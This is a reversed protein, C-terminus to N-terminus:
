KYTTHLGFDIAVLKDDIYGYNKAHTDRIPFSLKAKRVRKDFEELALEFNHSNNKLVQETDARQTYYGWADGQKFHEKLVGFKTDTGLLFLFEFVDSLVAPALQHGAAELQCLCAKQANDRIAYLKLGREDDVPIYVAEVGNKIDDITLKIYHRYYHDGYSSKDSELYSITTTEVKKAEIKYAPLPMLVPMHMMAPLGKSAVPKKLVNALPLLVSPLKVVPVGAIGRTVDGPPKHFNPWIHGWIKTPLLAMKDIRNGATM